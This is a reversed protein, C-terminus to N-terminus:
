RGQYAADGKNNTVKQKAHYIWCEAVKITTKAMVQLLSLDRQVVELEMPCPSTCVRNPCDLPSSVDGSHRGRVNIERRREFGTSGERSRGEVYHHHMKERRRENLVSAGRGAEVQHHYMVLRVATAGVFFHIHYSWCGCFERRKRGSAEKTQRREMSLVFLVM